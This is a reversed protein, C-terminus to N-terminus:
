YNRVEMEGLFACFKTPDKLSYKVEVSDGICSFNPCYDRNFYILKSVRVEELIVQDDETKFKLSCCKSNRSCYEVDDIVGTVTRTNSSLLKEFKYNDYLFYIILVAFLVIYLIFLRDKKKKGM